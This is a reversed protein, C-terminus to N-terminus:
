MKEPARVGLITLMDNLISRVAMCLTLRAATLQDNEPDVVRHHQYFGHFARAVEALLDPIRHPELATAAASIRLPMTELLRMLDREREGTLLSLLIAPDSVLLTNMDTTKRLIGAIRAFAYQVYFVPNEDNEAGAVELDFDMHAEARRTLFLYRVVDASGVENVLDRLTVFNGARTSMKVKEGGRVLTVFQHLIIRLSSSVRDKGLLVGLVTEVDKCTDIHDSGFIDVILDYNRKFKDLHYAIDPMRYTYTGDERKIVRDDPRGMESLKLWLKRKDDSDKYILEKEELLDIAAEVADPILESEAFYRDFTIGLLKLDDSILVFARNGAYDRFLDKHEPWELSDGKDKRLDEAWSKIYEGQYGGDPIEMSGGPLNLYRAALSEALKEMQRGSDNFYYERQVTWGVAELLRSVADGLVAQRCHGVTLPGTPNSSVFEVLATRGKGDAPIFQSIGGSAAAATFEALYAGSLTINLFGPGDVSIKEVQSFNSSIAEAMVKAIERPNRKLIGALPMASSCALDGFSLNRSPLVDVQPIERQFKEGLAAQMAAALEARTQLPSKM